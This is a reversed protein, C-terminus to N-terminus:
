MFSLSDTPAEQQVEKEVVGMFMSAADTVNSQSERSVKTLKLKGAVNTIWKSEIDKRQKETLNPLKLAQAPSILKSPYIDDKKVRKGKLMKVIEDEEGNWVNKSNGPRMAYGLVAEGENIRKELETEVQTFVSDLQDKLDAIDSLRHSPLTTINGMAAELIEVMNTSDGPALETTMAKVKEIAEENGATCSGGRKPNAKCWQCHKGSILPANPDDTKHAARALDEVATIAESTSIDEYRVAPMTKPQVITVRCSGVQNPYFPRVLQPGSAIFKRLKGGLYSLLQTNNQASVFGRGDKYDVIEIFVCKDADMVTITIDVTGNWDDRGFMGGPDSKSEAEITIDCGPFQATLEQYRRQLYNLCQQVRECRDEMILWGTPRDEHNVGIIQDLYQTPAVNNDLCMELLLHSGTGDIAAEGPIDPYPEEAHVSGPCKPWRANSPSLRAHGNSM